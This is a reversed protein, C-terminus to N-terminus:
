IRNLPSRKKEYSKDSQITALVQQRTMKVSDSSSFDGPKLICQNSLRKNIKDISKLTKFAKNPGILDNNTSEM